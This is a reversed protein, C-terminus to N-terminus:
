RYKETYGWHQNKREVTAVGFFFIEFINIYNMKFLLWRIEERQSREDIRLSYQVGEKTLIKVADFLVLSYHWEQDNPTAANCVLSWVSFHDTPPKHIQLIFEILKDIRYM